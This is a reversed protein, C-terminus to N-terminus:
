RFFGPCSQNNKISGINRMVSTSLATLSIQIEYADFHFFKNVPDPLVTFSAFHIHLESYAYLMQYQKNNQQAQKNVLTALLLHAYIIM